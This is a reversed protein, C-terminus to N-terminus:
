GKRGYDHNLPFHTAGELTVKRDNEPAGIKWQVRLDGPSFGGDGGTPDGSSSSVM